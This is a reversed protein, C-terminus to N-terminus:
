SSLTKIIEDCTHTYHRKDPYFHVDKLKPQNLLFSLDGNILDTGAFNLEELAPMKKLVPELSEIKGNNLYSFSKLTTLVPLTNPNFARCVEIKLDKLSYDFGDAASFFSLKQNYALELVRLKRLSEVGKLSTIGSQILCLFGLNRLGSLETIDASNSKYKWVTLSKLNKSTFINQLHKSWYGRFEIL